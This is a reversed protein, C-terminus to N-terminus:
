HSFNLAIIFEIFSWIQVNDFEIFLVLNHLQSFRVSAKQVAYHNHESKDSWCGSSCVAVNFIAAPNNRRFMPINLLQM